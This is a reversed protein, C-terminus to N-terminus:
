TKAPPDLWEAPFTDPVDWGPPEDFPPHSLVNGLAAQMRCTVCHAAPDLVGMAIWELATRKEAAM